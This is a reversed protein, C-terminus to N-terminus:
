RGATSRRPGDDAFPRRGRRRRDRPGSGEHAPDPQRDAREGRRDVGGVGGAGAGFGPPELRGERGVVESLRKLESAMDQNRQIIQNMAEAVRREVGAAKVAVRVSFDGQEVSELVGLLHRLTFSGGSPNRPKM